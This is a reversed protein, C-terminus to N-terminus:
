DLRLTVEVNGRLAKSYPCTQHAQHLLREADSRAVGPISARLEVALNYGGQEDERLFVRAIVTTGPVMYHGRTAANLLAGHFCAAYAGAFLLEPNLTSDGSKELQLSLRNNPADIRGERGGQSVMESVHVVRVTRPQQTPVGTSM